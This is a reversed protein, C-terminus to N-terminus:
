IIICTPRFCLNAQQYRWSSLVDKRTLLSTQRLPLHSWLAILTTQRLKPSSYSMSRCPIAIGRAHEAWNKNFPWSHGQSTFTDPHVAMPRHFRRALHCRCDSEFKWGPHIKIESSVRDMEIGLSALVPQQVLGFMRTYRYIRSTKFIDMMINARRWQGSSAVAAAEADNCSVTALAWLVELPSRLPRSDAALMWAEWDSSDTCSLAHYAIKRSM